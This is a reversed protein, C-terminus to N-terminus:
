DVLSKWDEWFQAVGATTLYHDLNYEHWDLDLSLEKYPIEVLGPADYIFEAPPQSFGSEAWEKLIKFPITIIDSKLWLAYLIHKVSRVSATLVKVHRDGFGRYMELINAVVDMGNEAHDDLRGVFPSVFVEYPKGQPSINRRLTAVYVAAAQEQSFNLTMNVPGEQCFVQAAAVGASNCPFKIIGNPIWKIRERAQSLMQDTTTTADGLVQISIPGKTVKAMEGVIRRYERLAQEQPIRETNKMKSRLNKMILTPNTTQGDLGHHGAQKLLADAQRTEQPDGGDLFIRSPLEM